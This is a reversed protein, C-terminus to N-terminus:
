YLVREGVKYFAAPVGICLLLFLGLKLEAWEGEWYRMRLLSLWDPLSAEFLDSFFGRLDGFMWEWLQLLVPIALCISFLLLFIHNVGGFM